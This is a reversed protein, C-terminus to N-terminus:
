DLFRAREEPTPVRCADLRGFWRARRRAVFDYGADRWGRPLFRLWSLPRWWGGVIEAIACAADSRVLIREGNGRWDRVLVITEDPLARGARGEVERRTTGQLPAFRLVRRRDARLLWRVLRDCLGCLGDFLVLHVDSPGDRRIM